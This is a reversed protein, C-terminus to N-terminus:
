LFHRSRSPAAAPISRTTNEARRRAAAGAHETTGNSSSSGTLCGPSFVHGIGFQGASGNLGAAAAFEFQCPFRQDFWLGALDADADLSAAKAMGIRRRNLAHKRNCPRPYGSMLRHAYDVHEACTDLSPRHSLADAHSKETTTAPTAFLAPAAVQYIAAVLLERSYLMVAAIGLHQDGSRAPQHRYGIVEGGHIGRWEQAGAERCEARKSVGRGLRAVQDSYQPDAPEPMQADLICPVHSKLDGSDPASRVLGFQRSLEARVMVDVARGNIRALSQLFQASGREHNHCGGGALCRRLGHLAQARAAPDEREACRRIRDFDRRGIQQKAVTRDFTGYGSVGGGAVGCQPKTRKGANGGHDLGHREFLSRLSVRLHHRALRPKAHYKGHLGSKPLFQAIEKRAIDHILEDFKRDVGVSPQVAFRQRPNRDFCHSSPPRPLGANCHYTRNRSPNCRSM